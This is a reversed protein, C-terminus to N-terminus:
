STQYYATYPDPGLSASAWQSLLLKSLCLTPLTRAVFVVALFADYSPQLDMVCERVFRQM